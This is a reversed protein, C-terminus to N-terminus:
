VANIILIVNVKRLFVFQAYVATSIHTGHHYACPIHYNVLRQKLVPM